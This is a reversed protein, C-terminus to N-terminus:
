VEDIKKNRPPSPKRVRAYLPKGTHTAYIAIWLTGADILNKLAQDRIVMGSWAHGPQLVYPFQQGGPLNPMPVVMTQAPKNRIRRWLTPYDHLALHTLTTTSEGRNTVNVTVYTQESMQGHQVLKMEPAVSIVLKAGHEFWRRVELALAGTAVIAAYFAAIDAPAM